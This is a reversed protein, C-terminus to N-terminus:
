KEEDYYTSVIYIICSGLSILSQFMSGALRLIISLTITKLALM